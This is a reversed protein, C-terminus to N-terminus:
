KEFVGQELGEPICARGKGTLKIMIMIYDTTEM